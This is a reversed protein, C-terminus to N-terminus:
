KDINEIYKEDFIVVDAKSRVLCSELEDVQLEKDLPVSIIGGLLNSLHSVVWEYRNRGVIAIRKNKLGMQYLKTGFSNIDQLLKKYTIKEYEVEKSKKHKIIFAINEAFEKASNYVIEKINKFEIAKFYREREM